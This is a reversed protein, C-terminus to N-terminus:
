SPYKQLSRPIKNMTRLALRAQARDNQDLKGHEIMCVLGERDFLLNEEGESSFIATTCGPQMVISELKM